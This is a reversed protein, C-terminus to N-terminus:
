STIDIVEGKMSEKRNKLSLRYLIGFNMIVRESGRSNNADEKNYSIIHYSIIHYSIIRYSIIHYSIIHYSIIHYSIIHYSIIHYSIIHYSIIHYIHYSIIHYSIIHYSIIHYSIIHYSIIHYSIIRYSIIRYSIDYVTTEWLYDQSFIQKRNRNRDVQSRKHLLWSVRRLLRSAASCLWTNSACPTAWVTVFDTETWSSRSLAIRLAFSANTLPLFVSGTVTSRSSMTRLIMNRVTDSLNALVSFHRCPTNWEFKCVFISLFLTTNTAEFSETICYQGSAETWKIM